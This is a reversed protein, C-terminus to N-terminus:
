VLLALLPNSLSAVKLVVGVASVVPKLVDLWPKIKGTNSSWEEAISKASKSIEAALESDAKDGAVILANTLDLYLGRMEGFGDATRPTAILKARLTDLALSLAKVEDNM